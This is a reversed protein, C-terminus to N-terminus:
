DGAMTQMRRARAEVRALANPLVREVMQDFAAEFFTTLTSLIWVDRDADPGAEGSEREAVVEELLRATGSRFAEVERADLEIHTLMIVGQKALARYTPLQTKVLWYGLEHDLSPDLGPDFGWSADGADNQGRFIVLRVDGGADEVAQGNRRWQLAFSPSRRARENESAPLGRPRGCARAQPRV